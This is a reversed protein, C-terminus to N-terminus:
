RWPSSTFKWYDLDLLLCHCLRSLIKYFLSQLSYLSASFSEFSPLFSQWCWSGTKGASCGKALSNLVETPLRQGEPSLTPSWFLQIITPNAQFISALFCIDEDTRVTNQAQPVTCICGGTPCAFRYKFRM